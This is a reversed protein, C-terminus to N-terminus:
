NMDVDWIISMQKSLIPMSFMFKPSIDVYVIYVFM